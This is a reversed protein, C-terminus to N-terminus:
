KDFISDTVCIGAVILQDGYRYSVKTVERYSGDPDIGNISLIEGTRPVVADEFQALVNAKKDIFAVVTKM